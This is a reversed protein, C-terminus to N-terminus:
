YTDYGLAEAIAPPFAGICKLEEDPFNELAIEWAISCPDNEYLNDVEVFFEEGCYPSDEGVIEFLYDIM